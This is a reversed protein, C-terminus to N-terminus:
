GDCLLDSLFSEIERLFTPWAREDELPIHNESDLTLLRAGPIAAAIKRGEEFPVVNDNRCHTVLTPARVRPLLDAVDIDDCAMRLRVANDGSTAMRQLDAFWQIQERTGGPLYVSSFTRLFASSADGWGQRMIEMLAQGMDRQQPSQRKNRGVSYAGHLVLKVVREPNRVAHAIAIPAGQSVGLLAYRRLDLCDVIADLDHMFGDFSIDKVDRDSLGNGRGDYRVLRYRESLFRLMPLRVPSQWEYDLHNLWTATRVVALGDGVSSVAINIGDATRCFIYEQSQGPGDAHARGSNAKRDAHLAEHVAGVFRFGKRPLTRILTQRIGDDGIVRRVANVRVAITSDAVIRGGWVSAILDDKTVVRDRNCILYQLLDFVQPEIAVRKSGVWLERRDLDLIRDAFYFL